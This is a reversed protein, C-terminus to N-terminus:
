TRVKNFHKDTDARATDAVHKLLGFGIGRADDKNILNIRDTAMTTGTEAATIILALLREILQQNLHVPKFGILANNQNRGGVARVHQVRRQQARTAKVTLNNHGIRINNAALFDEFHM